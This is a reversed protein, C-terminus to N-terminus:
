NIHIKGILLLLIFMAYMFSFFLNIEYGPHMFYETWPLQVPIFMLFEQNSILPFPVFTFYAFLYFSALSGILMRVMKRDFLMFSDCEMAYDRDDKTIVKKLYRLESSYVLLAIMKTGVQSSADNCILLLVLMEDFSVQLYIAIGYFSWFQLELTVLPNLMLNIAGYVYIPGIASCLLTLIIKLYSSLFGPDFVNFGTM